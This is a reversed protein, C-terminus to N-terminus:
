GLGFPRVIRGGKNSGYLWCIDDCVGFLPGSGAVRWRRLLILYWCFESEKGRRRRRRWGKWLRRGMGERGPEVFGACRRAAYANEYEYRQAREQPDCRKLATPCSSRFLTLSKFYPSVPDKPKARPTTPFVIRLALHQQGRQHSDHLDLHYSM